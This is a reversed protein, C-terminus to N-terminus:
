RVTAFTLEEANRAQVAECEIPPLYGLSADVVQRQSIAFFARGFPALAVYARLFDSGALRIPLEGVWKTAAVRVLRADGM